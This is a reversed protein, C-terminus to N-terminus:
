DNKFKPKEIAQRIKDGDPISNLVGLVRQVWGLAARCVLDHGARKELEAILDATTKIESMVWGSGRWSRAVRRAKGAM